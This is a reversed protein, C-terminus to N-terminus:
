SSLNAAMQSPTMEFRGAAAVLDAADIPYWNRREFRSLGTADIPEIADRVAKEILARLESPFPARGRASLALDCAVRCRPGFGPHDHLLFGGALRSRGLRRAIESYAAAAFYLLAVRQFSPPDPMTAYLSAILREAAQFEAHGSRVYDNLRDAFQPSDLGTALADALRGIGLLTLPFGTSLLPDIFGAAYPLLAWRTGAMQGCRFPLRPSHVFPLEATAHRFQERVTPFRALLRQWAPAGDAFQLSEAVPDTAAVGASTLGNNFRLVWIWGGDFVHHLAADDPPYPAQAANAPVGLGDLRQVGRFHSYLAQTPPHHVFSATPLTLQRFLFGRPGSADFLFRTRLSVPHDGRTGTLTVSALGIDVGTLTTEDLYEVGAAVAEHVLFQDFDPRYWHTDATEDGSSAAVLLQRSRSEDDQFSEGARHHYFTFGRKLGCALEPRDRQWSGWKSLPALRPLDFRLALESWLIDALPTSSEGIVFRPHRGREVLVVSYGLRRAILALLSGAFGSGVIALDFDAASLRPRDNM